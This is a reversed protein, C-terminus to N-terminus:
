KLSIGKLKGLVIKIFFFHAILFSILGIMFFLQGDKMLFIDGFFSFILAMVYLNNRKKVSVVYLTLLSLLLFPKTSFSIEPLKFIIGFVHILSISIFIIIAVTQKTMNLNTGLLYYM